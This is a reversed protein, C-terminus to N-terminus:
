PGVIRKVLELKPRKIHDGFAGDEGEPTSSRVLPCFFIYSSSHIRLFSIDTVGNENRGFMSVLTARCADNCEVTRVLSSSKMLVIGDASENFIHVRPFQSVQLINDEKRNKYRKGKM